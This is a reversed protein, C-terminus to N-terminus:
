PREGALGWRGAASNIEAGASRRGLVRVLEGLFASNGHRGLIDAAIQVLSEALVAHGVASEAVEPPVQGLAQRVDRAFRERAARLPHASDM